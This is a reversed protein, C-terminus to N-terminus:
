SKSSDFQNKMLNKFLDFLKLNGHLKKNNIKSFARIKPRQILIFSSFDFRKLYQDLGRIKKKIQLHFFSVTKTFPLSFDVVAPKGFSLIRLFM